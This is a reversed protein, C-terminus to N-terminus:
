KALPSSADTSRGTQEIRIDVWDGGIFVRGEVKSEIEM